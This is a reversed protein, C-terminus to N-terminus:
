LMSTSLLHGRKTLSIEDSLCVITQINTRNLYFGRVILIKKRSPLETKLIENQDM